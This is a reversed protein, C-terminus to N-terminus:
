YNGALLQLISIYETVQQPICNQCAVNTVSSTTQTITNVTITTVQITSTGSESVSNSVVNPYTTTKRNIATVTVSYLGDSQPTTVVRIINQPPTIYVTTTSGLSTTFPLYGNYGCRGGSYYDTACGGNYWSFYNSYYTQNIYQITGVYVSISQQTITNVTQYNTIQYAVTTPTAGDIMVTKQVPIIPMVLILIVLIIGFVAWKANKKVFPRLKVRVHPSAPAPAACVSEPYAELGQSNHRESFPFLKVV